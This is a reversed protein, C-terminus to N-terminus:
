REQGQNGEEKRRTRPAQFRRKLGGRHGNKGTKSLQGTETSKSNFSVKKTKSSKWASNSIQVKTKGM